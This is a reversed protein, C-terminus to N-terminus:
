EIVVTPLRKSRKGAKHKRHVNAEDRAENSETSSDSYNVLEDLKRKRSRTMPGSSSSGSSNEGDIDRRHRSKMATEQQCSSSELNHKRKMTRKMTKGAFREQLQPLRPSNSDSSSSLSSLYENVREENFDFVNPSPTSATTTINSVNAVNPPHLLQVSSPSSSSSSSPRSTSSSSTSCKHKRRQALKAFDVARLRFSDNAREFTATSSTTATHHDAHVADSPTVPPITGSNVLWPHHVLENATLRKSPDVMLLNKVVQKAANSVHNWAGGELNTEGARARTAEKPSLTSGSLMFYLVAGLSWMDCSEDYEQRALVEPAAYPLTFCPTHLSESINKMQAFGFDVIKVSLDESSNNVFVINEPKLDRHVVGRAHMYRVVSALQRMVRKAQRETFNRKKLLEGGSLLEMVFYTHTRDSYVNFLKVVNPHHQCKRLLHEERSCDLRQTIIKVACEQQTQRHRCRLCVSYTGKGLPEKRDLEYLQFFESEEFHTAFVNSMSPQQLEISEEEGFIDRSVANDTFLISPAVYSYGQLVM